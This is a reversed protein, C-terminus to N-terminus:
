FVAHGEDDADGARDRGSLAQKARVECFGVAGEMDIGVALDMAHVRGSRRAELPDGGLEARLDDAVVADDLPAHEAVLDEALRLPHFRQARRDAIDGGVEHGHEVAPRYLQRVFRDREELGHVQELVGVHRLRVRGPEHDGLVLGCDRAQHLRPVKVAAFGLM